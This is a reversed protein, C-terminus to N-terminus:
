VRQAEINEHKFHSFHYPIPGAELLHLYKSLGQLARLGIGLKVLVPQYM